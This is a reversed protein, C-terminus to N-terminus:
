DNQLIIKWKKWTQINTKVDLECSHGNLIKSKLLHLRSNNVKKLLLLWRITKWVLVGPVAAGILGKIKWVKSILERNVPM